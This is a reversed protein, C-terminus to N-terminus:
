WQIGVTGLINLDMIDSGNQRQLVDTWTYGWEARFGAIFLHHSFPIVVDTHWGVYTGAITDTLHRLLANDIQLKNIDVKMTGYRGGADVGMRWSKKSCDDANGWFYWEKGGGLDVYTRNMHKVAIEEVPVVIGATNTRINYLTIPTNIANINNFITTVGLDVTWAQDRTKNYFISRFGGDLQWGTEGLRGFFNGSIPSSAGVRTYIEHGIPGDCGMPGICDPCRPYRIWPSPVPEFGEPETPWNPAGPGPPNTNITAPNKSLPPPSGSPIGSQGGSSYDQGRAVGLGLLVVMVSSLSFRMGSM